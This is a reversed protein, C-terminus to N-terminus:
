QQHNVLKVAPKKVSQVKVSKAKKEGECAAKQAPTCNAKEAQTCNDKKNPTAVKVKHVTVKEQSAVQIGKVTFTHGKIMKSKNCSNVVEVPPVNVFRKSKSCYEVETLSVRGSTPCVSQRYYSVEGTSLNVKEKVSVDMAAAKSPTMVESTTHTQPAKTTTLKQADLQAWSIM